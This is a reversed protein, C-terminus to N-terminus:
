SGQSDSELKKVPAARDITLREDLGNKLDCTIVGIEMLGSHEVEQRSHSRDGPFIRGEAHLSAHYERFSAPIPNREDIICLETGPWTIADVPQLELCFALTGPSGHRPM